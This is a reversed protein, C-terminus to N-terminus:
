CPRTDAVWSLLSGGLHRSHRAPVTVCEGLSGDARVPALEVASASCNIVRATWPTPFSLYQSSLYSCWTDEDHVAREDAGGPGGAFSSAAVAVCATLTTVILAGTRLRTRRRHRPRRPGVAAESAGAAGM